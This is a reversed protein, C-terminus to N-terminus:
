VPEPKTCINRMKCDVDSWDRERGAHLFKHKHRSSDQHHYCWPRMHSCSMCMYRVFVTYIYNLVCSVSVWCLDCGGILWIARGFFSPTANHKCAIYWIYMYIYIARTKNSRQLHRQQQQQQYTNKRRFMLHTSVVRM